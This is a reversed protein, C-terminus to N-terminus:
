TAIKKISFIEVQCKQGYFPFLRLHCICWHVTIYSLKIKSNHVVFRHMMDCIWLNHRVSLILFYQCAPFILSNLTPVFNFLTTYSFVLILFGPKPFGPKPRIKPASKMVNAMTLWISLNLGGPPDSHWNEWKTNVEM